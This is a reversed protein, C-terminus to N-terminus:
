LQQNRIESTYSINICKPHNVKCFTKQFDLCYFYVNINIHEFWPIPIQTSFLAEKTRLDNKFGLQTDDLREEIIPSMREYIVYLFISKSCSM